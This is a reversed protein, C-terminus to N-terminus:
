NWEMTADIVFYCYFYNIFKSTYGKNDRPWKQEWTTVWYQIYFFFIVFLWVSCHALLLWILVLSMLINRLTYYTSEQHKTFNSSCVIHTTVGHLLQETPLNWVATSIILTTYHWLPLFWLLTSIGSVVVLKAVDRLMPSMFSNLFHEMEIFDGSLLPASALDNWHCACKHYLISTVEYCVSSKSFSTEPRVRVKHISWRFRM